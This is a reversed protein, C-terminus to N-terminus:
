EHNWDYLIHELCGFMQNEAYAANVIDATCNDM